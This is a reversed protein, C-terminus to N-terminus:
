SSSSSENVAEEVKEINLTPVQEDLLYVYRSKDSNTQNKVLYSKFKKSHDTNVNTIIGVQYGPLFKGGLGSTVLTDGVKLDAVMAVHRIELEGPQGTGFALAREGSRTSEVPIAMKPDTLLIVKANILGVQEVLGIVGHTNFVPQGEQIKHQSGRNLIAYHSFPTIMMSIIQGAKMQAAKKTNSRLLQKLEKNELELFYLTLMKEQLVLLDQELDKKEDILSQKSKAYDSVSHAVQAPVHLVQYAPYLAQFLAGKVKLM